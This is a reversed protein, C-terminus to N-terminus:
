SEAEPIEEGEFKVSVHFGNVKLGSSHVYATGPNQYDELEGDFYFRMIVRIYGDEVYPVIKQTGAPYKGFLDLKSPYSSGELAGALHLTGVYNKQETTSLYFDVSAAKVYPDTDELNQYTDTDEPTYVLSANFASVKMEKSESSIYAEYDIYYRRGITSLTYEPVPQYQLTAGSLKYGTSDSISKPNTIYVLGTKCGENSYGLTDNHSAPKLYYSKADFIQEESLLISNQTIAGSTSGMVLTPLVKMGADMGSGKVEENKAFWAITVGLIMMFSLGVLAM